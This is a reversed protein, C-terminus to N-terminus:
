RERGSDLCPANEIDFGNRMDINTSRLFRLESDRMTGQGKFGPDGGQPAAKVDHDTLGLQQMFFDRLEMKAFELGIGSGIEGNWKVGLYGSEECTPSIFLKNPFGEKVSLMKYKDLDVGLEDAKQKFAAHFRDRSKQGPFTMIIGLGTGGQSKTSLNITSGVEEQELQETFGGPKSPPEIAGTAAPANEIEILQDPSDHFGIVAPSRSNFSPVSQVRGELGLLEIVYDNIVQTGLALGFMPGNLLVGLQPDDYRDAENIILVNPRHPDEAFIKSADLDIDEYAAQLIVAKRFADLAAAGPFTVALQVRKYPHQAAELQLSLKSM